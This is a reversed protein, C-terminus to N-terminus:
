RTSRRRRGCAQGPRVRHHRTDTAEASWIHGAGLRMRCQLAPLELVAAQRRYMQALTFMLWATGM